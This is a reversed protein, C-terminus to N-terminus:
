WRREITATKNYTRQYNKVHDKADKPNDWVALEYGTASKVVYKKKEPINDIFVKLAQMARSYDNKNENPLAEFWLNNKPLGELSAQIKKAKNTLQKM